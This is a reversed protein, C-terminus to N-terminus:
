WACAAHASTTSTRLYCLHPIKIGVEDAAQMITTGEPVAIKLGDITVNVM